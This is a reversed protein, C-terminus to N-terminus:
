HFSFSMQAVVGGSRPVVRFQSVSAVSVPVWKESKIVLGAIAGVLLGPVAYIIGGVVAADRVNDTSFFCSGPVTEECPKWTAASAIAGLSAGVVAGIRMAKKVEHRTGLSREVFLLNSRGVAITDRERGIVLSDSRRAILTGIVPEANAGGVIRVRQGVSLGPVAQASLQPSLAWLIVLAGPLASRLIRKQQLKTTLRM